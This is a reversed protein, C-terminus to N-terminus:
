IFRYGWANNHEELRMWKCKHLVTLIRQLSPDRSSIVDDNNIFSQASKYITKKPLEYLFKNPIGISFETFLSHAIGWEGKELCYRMMIPLLAQMREM